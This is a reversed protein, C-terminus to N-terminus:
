LNLQMLYYIFQKITIDVINFNTKKNLKKNLCILKTNGKKVVNQYKIKLKM